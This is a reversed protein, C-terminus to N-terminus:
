SHAYLFVDYYWVFLHIVTKFIFCQTTFLWNMKVTIHIYRTGDGTADVMHFTDPPMRPQSSEAHVRFIACM